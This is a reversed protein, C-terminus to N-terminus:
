YDYTKVDNFQLVRSLTQYGRLFVFSIISLLIIVGIASSIYTMLQLVIDKSKRYM